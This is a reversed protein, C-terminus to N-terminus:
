HRAADLIDSERHRYCTHTIEGSEAMAVSKTPLDGATECPRRPWYLGSEYYDLVERIAELIDTDTM